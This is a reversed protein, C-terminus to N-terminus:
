RWSLSYDTKQWFDIYVIFYMTYRSTREVGHTVFVATTIGLYDPFASWIGDFVFLLSVHLDVQVDATIWWMEIQRKM